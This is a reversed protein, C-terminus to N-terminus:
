MYSLLLCDKIAFKVHRSEIATSFRTPGAPASMVKVKSLAYVAGHHTTRFAPPERSGAMAPTGRRQRDRQDGTGVAAGNGGGLGNGFM